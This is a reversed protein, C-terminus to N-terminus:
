KVRELMEYVDEETTSGYEVIELPDRGRDRVTEVATEPDFEHRAVLWGAHVQGTRGIGSLCHVVVPEDSVVSDELFPFIETELTEASVLRHDPVPVHKVRENGFARRYRGLNADESDLKRGPLLCCVREIGSRQMFEIWETLAQEHSGASHWGPCCAGYIYEDDPAVSSFRHADPIRVERTGM